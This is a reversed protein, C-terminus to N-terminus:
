TVICSASSAGSAPTLKRTPGRGCASHNRGTRIRYDTAGTRGGVRGVGEATTSGIWSDFHGCQPVGTADPARKQWPHPRDNEDSWITMAVPVNVGGPAVGARAGDLVGALVGALVGDLPLDRVGVKVGTVPAGVEDVSSATDASTSSADSSAM